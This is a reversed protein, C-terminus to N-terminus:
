MERLEPEIYPLALRDYVEEETRGALMKTNKFLGYESLKWGRRQALKRLAINHPESGTFYNLAAGWSQAPVIRVDVDIGSKLRMSTKTPGTGYVHAVSPLALLKTMVREPKSSSILIDIDGITEKWRRFSGTVEVRDVEPMRAIVRHLGEVDATIFGLNFRKASRRMFEISKLIKQETRKGYHPITSIKGARAAKELDDVDRIRLKEWLTKVTQPGVGEISTLGVIDVPIAKKFTDYEKFHGTTFLEELHEAIATGVGPIGDIAKTGLEIFVDHVNEGFSEVGHAAREYARPKFEVGKLEYLVAMESLINAIEQNSFHHRGNM